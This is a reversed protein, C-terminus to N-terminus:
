EEYSLKVVIIGDITCVSGAQPYVPMSKVQEWTKIENAKEDGVVKIPYRVVIDFYAQWTTLYSVSANYDVGAVFLEGGDLAFLRMDKHIEDFNGLFAVETEGYVYGDEEEIKSILRSVSSLTAQADLEKKVYCTNSVGMGNFIVFLALPFVVFANKLAYGKKEGQKTTGYWCLLVIAIPYFMWAGMKMVDHCMDAMVVVLSMTLPLLLLFLLACLVNGRQLGQRRVGLCYCYVTYVLLLANLICILWNGVAVGRIAWTSYATSLKGCGPVFLILFTRGYAKAIRVLYEIPGVLLKQADNYDTLAQGWLKEFGWSLAFYVFCCVALLLMVLLLRKFVAQWAEGRLLTQVAYLLLLTVSIGLYGQYIGLLLITGVGVLLPTTKKNKGNTWVYVVWVSLFFAFMDGTFDHMFSALVATVTVNVSFIGSLLIVQWASRLAFTKCLFYVGCAVFTLGIIGAFWPLVYAEGTIFRFIPEIFRGIGFKQRASVVNYFEYLADHSVNLNFFAFGHACLGFVFTAILATLFLNKYSLEKKLSQIGKQFLSEEDQLKEQHDM